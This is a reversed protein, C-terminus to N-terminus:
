KSTLVWTQLIWTCCKDFNIPVQEATTPSLTTEFKRRPHSWRCVNTWAWEIFMTVPKKHTFRSTAKKLGVALFSQLQNKRGPSEGHPSLRPLPQMVPLNNSMTPRSRVLVPPKLLLMYRWCFSTTRDFSNFWALFLVDPWMSLLLPKHWHLM